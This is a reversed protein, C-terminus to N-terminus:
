QFQLSSLVQAAKAAFGADSHGPYYRHSYTLSVGAAGDKPHVCILNSVELLMPGPTSTRKVAAHDETLMQSRACRAGNATEPTVEHKLIKFRKPNSDAAQADKVARALDQHSSHAPVRVLMAQIAFTEDPNKGYKGLTLQNPQYPARIWGNENLPLISYGPQAIRQPPLPLEPGPLPAACGALAFFAVWLARIRM